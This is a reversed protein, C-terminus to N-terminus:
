MSIDASGPGQGLQPNTLGMWGGRGEKPLLFGSRTIRSLKKPSKDMASMTWRTAMGAYRFTSADRM